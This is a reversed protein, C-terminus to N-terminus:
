EEELKWVTWNTNPDLNGELVRATDEWPVRFLGANIMPSHVNGIDGHFQKRLDWVAKATNELIKQPIPLNKGYAISTFMCAIYFDKDDTKLADILLTTGEMSGIYPAGICYNRYEEYAGPFEKKFQAAVGSGWSGMCNCAHALISGEPANFVSGTKYVLM